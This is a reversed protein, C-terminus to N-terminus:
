VKDSSSDLHLTPIFLEKKELSQDTVKTTNM